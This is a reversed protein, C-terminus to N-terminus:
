LWAARSISKLGESLRDNYTEIAGFKWNNECNIRTTGSGYWLSAIDAEVKPSATPKARVGVVVGPKLRHFFDNTDNFPGIENMYPVGTEPFVVKNLSM